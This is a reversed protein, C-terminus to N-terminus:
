RRPGKPYILGQGDVGLEERELVEVVARRQEHPRMALIAKPVQSYDRHNPGPHPAAPDFGAPNLRPNCIPCRKVLDAEVGPILRELEDSAHKM